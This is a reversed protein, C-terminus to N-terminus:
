SHLQTMNFSTAASALLILILTVFHKILIMNILSSSSQPHRSKLTVLPGFAFTWLRTSTLMHYQDHILTTMHYYHQKKPHISTCMPPSHLQTSQPAVKTPPISPSPSHTCLPSTIHPQHTIHDIIGVHPNHSIIKYISRVSLLSKVIFHFQSQTIAYSPPFMHHCWLTNLTTIKKHPHSNQPPLYNIPHM